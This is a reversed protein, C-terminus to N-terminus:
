HPADGDTPPPDDGVPQQLLEGVFQAILDDSGVPTEGAGEHELISELGENTIIDVIPPPNVDTITDLADPMRAPTKAIDRMADDQSMTPRKAIAEAIAQDIQDSTWDPHAG